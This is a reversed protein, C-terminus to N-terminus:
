ANSNAHYRWHNTQRGRFSRPYASKGIVFPAFKEGTMSTTVLVTLREKSTKGGHPHELQFAFTGDPLARWFLACEDGNLVDKPLFQNLIRPIEKEVFSDAASGDADAAEGHFRKFVIANRRRFSLVWDRTIPVRGDEPEMEEQYHLARCYLAESDVPDAPHSSRMDSFWMLLAADVDYHSVEKQRKRKKAETNKCVIEEMRKVADNKMMASVAQKSYGTEAMVKQRRAPSDEELLYRVHKQKDELPLEVRGKRKQTPKSDSSMTLVPFFRFLPDSQSSCFLMKMMVLNM